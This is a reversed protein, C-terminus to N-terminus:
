NGLSGTRAEINDRYLHLSLFVKDGFTNPQLHCNTIEPMAKLIPSSTDLKFAGRIHQM